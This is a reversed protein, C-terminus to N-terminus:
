ELHSSRQTPQPRHAKASPHSKHAPTDSVPRAPESKGGRAPSELDGNERLYAAIRLVPNRPIGVVRIPRAPSSSTPKPSTGNPGHVIYKKPQYTRKADHAEAEKVLKRLKALETGDALWDVLEEVLQRLDRPTESGSAATM